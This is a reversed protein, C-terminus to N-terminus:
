RRRGLSRDGGPSRSKIPGMHLGGPCVASQTPGEPMGLQSKTGNVYADPLPSVLNRLGSPMIGGCPSPTGWLRRM